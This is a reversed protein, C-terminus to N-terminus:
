SVQYLIKRKGSVPGPEAHAYLTFSGSGPLAAFGIADWLWEDSTLGTPANGSPSVSVLRTGSVRADSVSFTAEYVPTSGFDIEVETLLPQWSPDAGAGGTTLVKGNTGPALVNWKSADRFLVNGRTSGIWDLATSTDIQEPDGTGATDRGLLKDTAINQMKAFTVVDNDITLATGGGSVTVDGYDGDSIGSGSSADIVVEVKGQASQDTATLTVGTGAVIDIGDRSAVFLNDVYVDVKSDVKVHGGGGGDGGVRIIRTEGTSQSVRSNKEYRPDGAHYGRAINRAPPIKKRSAM